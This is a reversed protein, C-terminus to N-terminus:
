PLPATPVAELLGALDRKIFAIRARFDYLMAQRDDLDAISLVAHDGPRSTVRAIKGRGAPTDPAPIRGVATWTRILRQERTLGDPENPAPTNMFHAVVPPYVNNADGPLDFIRALMNSPVELEGHGSRRVGLGIVSLTTTSSGAIVGLVGSARTHATLGLAASATGISGGIGLSALNLLDITHQRRGALYNQLERTEAIEADIEGMTEDVQLSATTVHLLIGQTLTITEVSPLSNPQASLAQLRQLAPLVGVATATQEASLLPENDPVFRPKEQGPTARASICCIALLVFLPFPRHGPM